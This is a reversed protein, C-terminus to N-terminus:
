ATRRAARRRVTVASAGTLLLVVGLLPVAASAGTAPLRTAGPVPPAATVDRGGNAVTGAVPKAVPKSAAARSCARLPGDPRTDYAAYLGRGCTQRAITANDDKDTGGGAATFSHFSADKICRDVCGDAYGVLVRGTKDVTMDIFDLLNRDPTGACSKDGAPIRSASVNGWWICGRQVPDTPTADVTVWSKGSDYTTAIYLHWGGKPNGRDPDFSRLNNEQKGDKALPAETPTGLFAIAARGASGGIAAPLTANKIGFPAGLDVIDTYTRARDKTVAVRLNNTADEWALYATGADDIAVAPDSDFDATTTSGPLRRVAFTLVPGPDAVVLAARPKTDVGYCEFNPLYATGDSAVKLHGHLGTCGEPDTESSRYAVASQGFTIGGDTSRACTSEVVVQSCYYVTRNPGYTTPFGAPAPGASFAQHDFNAGVGCGTSTTWGSGPLGAVAPEGDTDTFSAISCPPALQSVFTRGTVADTFLIPDLTTVGEVPNTVDKYTVKAPVTADDFTAQITQLVAQFMVKGTKHNVGISPEGANHGLATASAPDEGSLTTTTYNTYRPVVGPAPAGAAPVLMVAVLGSTVALPLLARRRM